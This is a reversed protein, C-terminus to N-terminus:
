PLRRSFAHLVVSCHTALAIFITAMAKTDAGIHLALREVGSLSKGFGALM